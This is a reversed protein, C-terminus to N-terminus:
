KGLMALFWRELRVLIWVELRALYWRGFGALLMGRLRALFGEEFFVTLVWRHLSAPFSRGLSALFSDKL